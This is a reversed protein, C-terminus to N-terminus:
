IFMKQLLAKKFRKVKNIEENYLNEKTNYHKIFNAVNNQIKLSPLMIELDKLDKGYLHIITSGQTLRLIERKMFYKIFTAAYIPNLEKKKRLINIDGGLQINDECVVSATVLDIGKTTTSGPILIDGKKSPVGEDYDTFSIPSEIIESYKTYLEGYLIAAYKGNVDIKEKSLGKGKKISFLNNIKVDESYISVNDFISKLISSKTQNSIEKKKELLEIKKNISNIFNQIKDQESKSPLKIEIDGVQKLNLNPQAGVALNQFIYKEIDSCNLRTQVYDVNIANLDNIKLIALAQNTNAPLIDETVKATRGLTGAISFLLDNKELISRSLENKHTNVHIYSNINIIQNNEINEVKIFNIGEESYNKPTTGKTISDTIEHIKIRKWSDNFEPFRLEPEDHYVNNDNKTKESSVLKEQVM